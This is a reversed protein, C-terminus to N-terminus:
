PDLATLLDGGGSLGGGGGGLGGWGERDGWLCM